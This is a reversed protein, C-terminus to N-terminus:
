TMRGCCFSYYFSYYFFHSLEIVLVIGKTSLIKEIGSPTNPPPPCLFVFLLKQGDVPQLAEMVPGM